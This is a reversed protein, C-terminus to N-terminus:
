TIVSPRVAMCPLGGLYEAVGLFQPMPRIRGRDGHEHVPQGLLSIRGPGANIGDFLGFRKEGNNARWAYAGFARDDVTENENATREDCGNM